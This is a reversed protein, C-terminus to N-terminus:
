GSTGGSKLSQLKEVLSGAASQTPTLWWPPGFRANLGSIGANPSASERCSISSATECAREKQVSSAHGRPSSFKGRASTVVFAKGSSSATSVTMAASPTTVFLNTYSRRTPGRLMNSTIAGSSNESRV